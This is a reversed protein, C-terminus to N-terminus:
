EVQVHRVGYLTDDTNLLCYLDMYGTLYLGPTPVAISQVGAQSSAYGYSVETNNGYPATSILYCFPDAGSSQARQVRAYLTHEIGAGSLKRLPCRVVATGGNARLGNGSEVVGGLSASCGAVASITLDTAALANSIAIVAVAAACVCTCWFGRRNKM